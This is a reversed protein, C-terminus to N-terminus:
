FYIRMIWETILCAEKQHHLSTSQLLLINRRYCCILRLFLYQKLFLCCGNLYRKSKEEESSSFCYIYIYIYRSEKSCVSVLEWTFFLPFLGNWTLNGNLSSNHARFRSFQLKIPFWIKLTPIADSLTMSAPVFFYFNIIFMDPKKMINAKPTREHSFQKFTFGSKPKFPLSITCGWSQISISPYSFNM